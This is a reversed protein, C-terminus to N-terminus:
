LPNRPGLPMPRFLSFHVSQPEYDSPRLCLGQGAAVAGAGVAGIGVFLGKPTMKCTM